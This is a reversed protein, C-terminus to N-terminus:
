NPKDVKDLESYNIKPKYIKTLYDIYNKELNKSEVEQYTGSVEPKAEDFTKEHAPDKKM